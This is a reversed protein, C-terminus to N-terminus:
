RDIHTKQPADFMHLVADDRNTSLLELEAETSRGSRGHMAAPM